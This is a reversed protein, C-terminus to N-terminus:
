YYSLMVLTVTSSLRASLEVLLRISQFFSASFQVKKEVEKISYLLRHKVNELSKRERRMQERSNEKIEGERSNITRQYRVYWVYWWLLVLLMVAFLYGYFSKQIRNRRKVYLVHFACVNCTKFVACVTFTLGWYYYPDYTHTYCGFFSLLPTRITISNTKREISVFLWYVYFSQFFINFKQKTYNKLVDLVVDLGICVGLGIAKVSPKFHNHWLAIPGIIVIFKTPSIYIDIIYLLDFCDSVARVSSSWLLQYPHSPFSNSFYYSKFV